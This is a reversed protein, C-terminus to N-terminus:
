ELKIDNQDKSSINCIGDFCNSTQSSRCHGKGLLLASQFSPLFCSPLSSAPKEQSKNASEGPAEGKRWGVDKGQGSDHPEGASKPCSVRHMCCQEQEVGM